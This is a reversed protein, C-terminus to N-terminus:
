AGLRYYKVTENSIQVEELNTFVLQAFIFERQFTRSGNQAGGLSFSSLAECWQIKRPQPFFNRRYRQNGSQPADQLQIEFNSADRVFGLYLFLKARATQVDM